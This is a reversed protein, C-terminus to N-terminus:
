GAPKVAVLDILASVGKHGHGEDLEAEYSELVRIELGAFAERLLAETYLNELAKPGGTGHDLQKPTYGHLMLVGGPRLVRVMRGFLRARAEPGVFQIFVGLVLDYAAEPWDWAELDAVQYDVEVGAEQALKRAKAIASPAGDWATVSLGKQALFVSNRGEGDAVSLASAGPTLWEAHALLFAAPARGFVYDETNFREEWM